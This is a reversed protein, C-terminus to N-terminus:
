GYGGSVGTIKSGEYFRRGGLGSGRYSSRVLPGSTVSKFGLEMAKEKYQQFENPSVFRKVSLSDKSPRLYQGITVIDVGACRLNALVELVESEEEGLGLMIGSKTLIDNKKLKISKLLNISRKYDAEPRIEEYLRPVTEMNHAWIYPKADLIRKDVEGFFDPTLIEIKIEIYREKLQNILDSFVGAGGDSLDDRTVSTIIVYSLGLLGVVHVIRRIEDPNPQLPVGKKVSCFRCGRTCIDGLIMFTINNKSFCEYINPCMAERCVTKINYEGLINSVRKFGDTKPLRTRIWKPKTIM